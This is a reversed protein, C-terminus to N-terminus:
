LLGSQPVDSALGAVLQVIGLCAFAPLSCVALPGATLVAAREATADANRAADHHSRAALYLSAM